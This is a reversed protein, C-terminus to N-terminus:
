RIRQYVAGTGLLYLQRYGMQMLRQSARTVGGGHWALDDLVVYGGIEIHQAVRVVDTVAQENHAGDIHAIGVAPPINVENSKKRLIRTVNELGLTKLTAMFNQYVLELNQNDWWDQDEKTTQAAIAAARDWPEIGVATGKGIAKHALALPIFSSGGYIGIELTISPRQALVLAALIAAKEPTCWGPLKPQVEAIQKFLDIM